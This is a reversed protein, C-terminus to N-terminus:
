RISDEGVNPLFVVDSHSVVCHMKLCRLCESKSVGASRALDDLTMDEAYHQQIYYLFTEMRQTAIDYARVEPVPLNQALELWLNSLLSLVEYEYCDVSSPNIHSLRVLIELMKAQWSIAPALQLCSIQPCNAIRKVYKAAPCGPYFSVLREPFLISKYHGNSSAWVLHVVNKNLFGGHGAPIIKIQDLTHLYVEGTLVFIFQFDEHWHMVHFGPPEPVSKGKEIDMCLYPFTSERNLNASNLYNIPM